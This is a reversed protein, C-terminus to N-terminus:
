RSTLLELRSRMKPYLQTIIHAADSECNNRYYYYCYYYYINLLNLSLYTM